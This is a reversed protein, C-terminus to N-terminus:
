SNKEEYLYNGHQDVYVVTQDVVCYGPEAAPNSPNYWPASMTSTPYYPSNPSGPYYPVVTSSPPTYPAGAPKGVTVNAMVQPTGIWTPFEDHAVAPEVPCSSVSIHLGPVQDPPVVVGGPGVVTWTLHTKLYKSVHYPQMSELEGTAVKGQLSTTLPICGEIEVASANGMSGWMALVGNSGVLNPSTAWGTSNSSVNGLFASITYSGNLSYKHANINLLYEYDGSRIPRGDFEDSRGSISRKSSSSGPGYLSNVASRVSSQSSGSGTEPYVYGLVSTSKIDMSTFYNGNVDKTFPKLPTYANKVQGASWQWNNQTQIGSVVYTDPQLVQWIAMQRDVNCHHLWFVPDFASYDLYYMHGGSEGGSIVHISDHIGEFSDHSSPNGTGEGTAETSVQVFQATTVFLNYVRDRLSIRNSDMISAFDNNNSRTLAANSDVPRRLTTPWTNYPFGGLDNSVPHFTYQYLPNDITQQGSPTTVSVTKDRILTPVDSQGSPPAMAWDWYPIRITSAATAWRSQQSAPFSNVVEQVHSYWVQEFLALYPRHWTWFLNSVHPCMGGQNVGQVGNWPVYPRGHIGAIQYYSLPDSQDVAQFRQMGLLYLNWQDANNALTRIELRPYVSGTIGTVAITARKKLINSREEITELKSRHKHQHSNAAVVSQLFFFLAFLIPLLTRPQRVSAM